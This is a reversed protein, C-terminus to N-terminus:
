FRYVRPANQMCIAMQRYKPVTQRSLRDVEGQLLGWGGAYVQGPAFCGGSLEFDGAKFGVYHGGGWSGAGARGGGFFHDPLRRSMGRTSTPVDHWLVQERDRALVSERRRRVNCCDGVAFGAPVVRLPEM